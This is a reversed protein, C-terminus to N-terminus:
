LGQQLREALKGRAFQFASFLGKESLEIGNLSSVDNGTPAKSTRAAIIAGETELIIGDDITEDAAIAVLDYHELVSKKDVQYELIKELADKFGELTDFLIVENEQTNSVIYIIVDALQKYVVLHSKFLLIDASEKYTKDFLEKEFVRQQKHTSFEDDEEATEGPVVHPQKHYRAYLRNGENDLIILSTVTYLSLNSM